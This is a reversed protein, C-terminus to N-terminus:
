GPMALHLENMHIFRQLLLPAPASPKPLFISSAAVEGQHCDLMKKTHSRLLQLRKSREFWVRNFGRGIDYYTLPLPLVAAANWVM